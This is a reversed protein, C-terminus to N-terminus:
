LKTYAWNKDLSEPRTKTDGETLYLTEGDLSVISLIVDGIVPYQNELCNLGAIEKAEGAVWNNFGCPKLITNFIDVSSETAYGRMSVVTMDIDQIKDGNINTTLDGKPTLTANLVSYIFLAATQSCTSDSRYLNITSTLKGDSYKDTRQTYLDNSDPGSCITKWSGDLKKLNMSTTSSSNDDDDDKSCGLLAITTILLCILKKM